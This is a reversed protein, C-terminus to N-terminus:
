PPIAGGGDSPQSAARIEVAHLLNVASSRKGLRLVSHALVAKHEALLCPSPIQGSLDLGPSRLEPQNQAQTDERGGHREKKAVLDGPREVAMM